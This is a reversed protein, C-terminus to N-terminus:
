PCGAIVVNGIVSNLGNITATGCYSTGDANTITYNNLIYGNNTIVGNDFNNIAGNNIIKGSSKNLFNGFNSNYITDINMIDGYNTITGNNNSITLYNKITAGNYNILSAGANINNISNNIFLGYNEFTTFIDKYANNVFSGYNKIKGLLEIYFYSGNLINGNNIITGSSSVQVDSNGIKWINNNILSGNNIISFSVVNGASTDYKIVGDNQLTLGNIELYNTGDDMPMVLIQYKTIITNKNLIWRHTSTNYTAIDSLNIYTIEHPIPIPIPIPIPKHFPLSNNLLPCGKNFLYARWHNHFGSRKRGAM